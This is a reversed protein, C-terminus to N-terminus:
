SAESSRMAEAASLVSDVIQSYGTCRCLNGSIAERAEERTPTSNRSLFEKVTLIIGPTCYGCQFGLHEVFSAQLPHLEEPGELSEITEIDQGEAQGVFMLCSRVPLGDLLITCAGCVGHECGAHAGTLDLDERLVDLLLKRDEVEVEATAGNVRLTWNRRGM